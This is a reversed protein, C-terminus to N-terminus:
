MQKPTLHECQQRHLNCDEPIHCRTPQCTVADRFDNSTREEHWIMEELDIATHQKNNNYLRRHFIGVTLPRTVDSETFSWVEFVTQNIIRDWFIYRLTVMSSTVRHLNRRRASLIGM